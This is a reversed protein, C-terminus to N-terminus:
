FLNSLLIQASVKEADDPKQTAQGPENESTTAGAEINEKSELSMTPTAYNSGMVVASGEVLKAETVAWFYGKSEALDKNAVEDIYKKWVKFEDEYREDNVALDIKVYRMGVSHEKVYGKAYQNFMYENREKSIEANFVLAQTSGELKKIGLESFTTNLIKAKVNDSIINQFSMKHEQLLYPNKKEQLTKKWIGPIHVDNHSDMINTTNIVLQAKITDSELLKATDPTAKTVSEDKEVLGVFYSISDAKKVEYCKQAIIESKRKVLEEITM